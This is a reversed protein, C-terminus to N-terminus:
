VDNHKVVAQTKLYELLMRTWGKFYLKRQYHKEKKYKDVAFKVRGSSYVLLGNYSIDETKSLFM